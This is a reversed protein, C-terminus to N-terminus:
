SPAPRRGGRFAQGSPRLPSQLGTPGPLPPTLLGEGLLATRQRRGCGSRVRDRVAPCVLADDNVEAYSLGHGDITACGRSPM